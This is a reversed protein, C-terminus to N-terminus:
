DTLKLIFADEAGASTVSHAGFTATSQLWGAAYVGNPAPAVALTYQSEPGTGQFSWIREGDPRLKAIFADLTQGPMVDSGILTGGDDFDLVGNFTGGLLLDEDGDIALSVVYQAGIGGIRKGWLLTGSPDIAAIFADLDPGAKIVGGGLKIDGTFYGGFYINNSADVVVQRGVQVNVADGSTHWWISQLSDGALKALFLDFPGQNYIPESTMALAGEFAGTILVDNSTDVTLGLTIQAPNFPADGIARSDLSKGDKDLRAVFIEASDGNVAPDDVVTLPATPQGFDITGTFTGTLVINQAADVAVSFASQDSTDGFARSWACSGDDSSLKVLFVDSAGLNQIAACGMADLTGTFGGAVVISGDKPDVAIANVTQDGASGINRSWLVVGDPDLKAVFTDTLQASPLTVPEMVLTDYPYIGAVIANGSADSTIARASQSYGNGYRKLWTASVDPSAGGSGGGGGGGSGGPTGGSSSGAAKGQQADPALCAGLSAAIVAAVALPSSQNSSRRIM